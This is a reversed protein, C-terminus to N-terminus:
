RRAAGVTVETMRKALDEVSPYSYAEVFTNELPQSGDKMTRALMEVARDMTLSTVVAASLAGQDVLPRSREAVGVGTRPLAMWKVRDTESIADFAKKAGTLFDTNQSVILQTGEPRQKTLELWSSVASCAGEATSALVKLSRVEVNRPKTREMGEFRKSAWWSMAPGRLYLVSGGGPLIAGIQRGQLQGVEMHDQSIQFVPAKANKRLAAVYDVQANSVVWAIGAAVAAEAVRPLGAASVPEMIIADPRSDTRSQVLSLLQQGQAVADMQAIMVELGAGLREATAQAAATQARLYMTDGPVSLVIRLKKM